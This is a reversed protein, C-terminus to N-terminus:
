EDSDYTINFNYGFHPLDGNDGFGLAYLASELERDSFSHLSMMRLMILKQAEERTIDMTSKWGM